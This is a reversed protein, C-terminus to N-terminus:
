GADRARRREARCGARSSAALAWTHRCCSRREPLRVQQFVFRWLGPVRGGRGVNRRGTGMGMWSRSRTRQGRRPNGSGQVRVCWCACRPDRVLRQQARVVSARGVPCQIAFRTPPPYVLGGGWVRASTAPDRTQDRHREPPRPFQVQVSTSPLLEQRPFVSGKCGPHPTEAGRVRGVGRRAPAQGRGDGEEKPDLVSRVEM